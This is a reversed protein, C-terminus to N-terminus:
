RTPPCLALGVQSGFFLEPVTCVKFRARSLSVLQYVETLGV